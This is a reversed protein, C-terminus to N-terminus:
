LTRGIWMWIAIIAGVIWVLGVLRVMLIGVHQLGRHESIFGSRAQMALFLARARIVTFLGLFFIVLSGVFSYWESGSYQALSQLSAVNTSQLANLLVRFAVVAMFLSTGALLCGAVQWERRRSGDWRIDTNKFGMLRGVWLGFAIVRHPSVVMLVGMTLAFLSVLTGFLGTLADTPNM